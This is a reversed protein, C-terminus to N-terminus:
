KSIVSRRRDTTGFYPMSSRQWGGFAEENWIGEVRESGISVTQRYKTERARDLSGSVAAHTTIYDKTSGLHSGYGTQAGFLARRM